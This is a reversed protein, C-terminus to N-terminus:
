LLEIEALLASVGEETLYGVVDDTIPTNYTIEGTKEEIVALEYLGDRGGYSYESKVVSAGYGNPFFIRAYVGFGGPHNNFELDNFTTM